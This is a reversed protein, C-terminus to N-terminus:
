FFYHSSKFPFCKKNPSDCVNTNVDCLRLDRRRWWFMDWKAHMKQPETNPPKDLWLQMDRCIPVLSMTPPEIINIKRMVMSLKDFIRNGQQWRVQGHECNSIPIYNNYIFYRSVDVIDTCYASWKLVMQENCQLPSSKFIWQSINWEGRRLLSKYRYMPLAM